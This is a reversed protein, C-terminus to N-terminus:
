KGEEMAARYQDLTLLRGDKAVIFCAREAYALILEQELELVTTTFPSDVKADRARALRHARTEEPTSALLIPIDVPGIRDSGGHTWEIVLVNVASLDVEDYWLADESRGMRKLWLRDKGARFGEVIARLQDFDQEQEQGLYSRLAERGKQQYLNLWPRDAAENPDADRETRWLERLEAGIENDYCGGDVLGRIGGCRFIRQREADNQAPIRRPYNDGSLTYAGLGTERIYYSLLSAIESKGVGSGGFVSIVARGTNAALAQGLAPLLASFLLCAKDIHEPGIKISDGPMDGCVVEGEPGHPRWATAAQKLMAAFDKM